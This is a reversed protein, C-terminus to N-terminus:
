IMNTVICLIGGFRSFNIMWIQNTKNNGGATEYKKNLELSNLKVAEKLNGIKALSNYNM